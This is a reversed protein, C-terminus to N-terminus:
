GVLRGVYRSTPRILRGTRRQEAVHALWGATRAVTFVPTFLERALGVADLLVATYFEVNAALPRDPKRERLIDAAAREVARALTLRPSAAAQGSAELEAAARELVAARPDRVRYVRHGMGMIRRGAALEAELWARAQEPRGVGDLMDLVPGPAGGHLPGKLAGIAATLASVTDSGTSAVVRAAFTSANMGHDSVTVLYADLARVRAPQAVGTILRLLDAAHSAEPDPALCDLGARRRWWAATVVATTALLMLADDAAEGTAVLQAVAGRLSDMGDAADLRPLHAAAAVRAQGLRRALDLPPPEGAAAWLATVVDEFCAGARHLAEVDHGAIVLRGREGDVDSLCTHAATVGELGDSSPAAATTMADEQRSM